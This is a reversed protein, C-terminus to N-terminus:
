GGHFSLGVYEMEMQLASHVDRVPMKGMVTSEVVIKMVPAAEMNSWWSFPTEIQTMNPGWRAHRKWVILPPLRPDALNVVHTEVGIYHFIGRYTPM